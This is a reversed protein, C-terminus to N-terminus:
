RLTVNSWQILGHCSSHFWHDFCLPEPSKKILSALKQFGRKLALTNIRLKKRLRSVELFLFTKLSPMNQVYNSQRCCAYWLQLSIPRMPGMETRAVLSFKPFLSFVVWLRCNIFLFMQNSLKMFHTILNNPSYQYKQTFEFSRTTFMRCASFYMNRCLRDM